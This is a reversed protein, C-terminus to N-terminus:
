HCGTRFIDAAGNGDFDGFAVDDIGTSDIRLSQWGSSAGSSYFWYDGSKRLADTKGDGDVDAFRLAALGVGSTNLDAWPTSAGASWMWKGNSTTFADTKGDGDFDGFALRDLTANSVNLQQWAGQGGYSVEWRSGTATFVDEKGDGDFDGFRLEALTEPATRLERWPTDGSSSVRWAGGSVTFVDDKGDGDFDGFRLQDLTASSAILDSWRGVGDTVKQWKSGTAMFVDSRGNGDFDALALRSIDATSTALYQWYGAGGPSYCWRVPECDSGSQGYRNPAAGSPSEDIYLNGTFFRQLVANERSRALCNDYIWAGHEPRGRVVLSYNESVLVTNRHILMEGGALESGNDTNENEGHMDFVHGNAHELVLNDRAEYDQGPEGSGAVAHRMYDMRNHDILFQVVGTEGRGLVVGYGLGQRQNHHLHSHHVRHGISDSGSVGAYSFGAIEVNDVELGDHRARIGSPRPMCDRCNRGGTRDEGTCESPYQPPCQGPDPGHLRIGTLRANPGCTQLASGSAIQTSYLLAGPSGDVGRGSALWVGEHICLTPGTIDIRADDAIYVIEGPKATELAGELEARDSVVTMCEDVRRVADPYDAGGGYRWSASAPPNTLDSRQRLADCDVVVDADHSGSDGNGGDAPGPAVSGDFAPDLSFDQDPQAGTDALGGDGQVLSPQEPSSCGLCSLSVLSLLLALHRVFTHPRDITMARSEVNSM